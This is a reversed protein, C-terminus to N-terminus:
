KRFRPLLATPRRSEDPPRDWHETSFAHLTLHSVHYDAFREIGRRINQTGAKHAFLRPKGRSRAWRGNGDMIIAVHGPTRPLDLPPASTTAPTQGSVTPSSVM